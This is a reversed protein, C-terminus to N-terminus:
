CRGRSVNLVAGDVSICLKEELKKWNEPGQVENFGEIRRETKEGGYRLSINQREVRYEYGQVEIEITANEASNLALAATDIRSATIGIAEKKVFSTGAQTAGVLIGLVLLAGFVGQIIIPPLGSVGKM